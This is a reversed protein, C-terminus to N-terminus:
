RVAPDAVSPLGQADRAYMTIDLALELRTESVPGPTPGDWEPAATTAVHRRMGAVGTHLADTDGTGPRTFALIRLAGAAVEPPLAPLMVVAPAGAAFADGALARLNATRERESDLRTAAGEPEEQLVVLRFRDLPLRELKLLTAAARVAQESRQGVDATFGGIRIRPGSSTDLPTGIVHLVAAGDEDIGLAGSGETDALDPVTCALEPWSREVLGVWRRDALCVVKPPLWGSRHRQAPPPGARWFRLQAVQPLPASAPAALALLAEWPQRRLAPDVQVAVALGRRRLRRRLTALDATVPGPLAAAAARYPGLGPVPCRGEQQVPSPPPRWLRRREQRTLRIEVGGDDTKRLALGVRARAARRADIRGNMDLLWWLPLVLLALGAFLWVFALANGGFGQVMGSRDIWLGFAISGAVVCVAAVALLTMFSRRSGRGGLLWWVPLLLLSAVVLVLTMFVATALAEGLGPVGVEPLNSFVIGTAISVLVGLGLLRLWIRLRVPLRRWRNPTAADAPAAATPELAPEPPSLDLEAPLGAHRGHLWALLAPDPGDSRARWSLCALLRDLWGEWQSAGAPEATSPKAALRALASWTPLRDGENARVAEYRAKTRAMRDRGSRKRREGSPDLQIAAIWARTEAILAGPLDGADAFWETARDLLILAARPLRLALLEGEDLTLEALRRRGLSDLSTRSARRSGIALARTGAPVGLATCRLVLRALEELQHPHRLEWADLDIPVTPAAAAGSDMMSAEVWDLLLSLDDFGADPRQARAAVEANLGDLAHRAAAGRGIRSRWWAHLLAPTDRGPPPETGSAPRAQDLASLSWGAAADVPDTSGRLRAILAADRRALRLRRLVEAKAREAARITGQDRGTRTAGDLRRELMALAQEGDGLALWGRAMTVFLPPVTRHANCAPQRDPLYREARALAALEAAPVVGRALRLGLVASALREADVLQTRGAAEAGWTDLEEASRRRATEPLARIAELRVRDVTSDPARWDLWRQGQWATGASDVADAARDLQEGAERWRGSLAFARGALTRAFAALEDHGGRGDVWGLITAATERMRRDDGTREAREVLAELGACVSADLQAARDRAQEDAGGGAERAADALLAQVVEQLDRSPAVPGAASAAVQGLAARRRLWTGIVPDPHAAATEEVERWMPSLDLDPHEHLLAACSTALVAARLPSDRGVAGGEGLLRETVARAWGWGAGEAVRAELRDWLRSAQGDPLLRLAADVHDVGLRGLPRNAVLGALGRALREAAAALLGRRAPEQYWALLRPRLNREVELFSTGLADDPQWDIWETAALERFLDTFANDDGDFAPRLSDQDFRGLLVVAPLVSRVDGRQLRGVIRSEVYQDSRGSEVTAPDLSPVERVWDAYLALDFPNYRSHGAPRPPTRWTVPAPRDTERSRALVAARLGATLPAQRVRLFTGAEEETFGQVWHLRLYDKREPLLAIAEDPRSAQWDSGAAALLRRGAFLVRVSPVLEHLREVISFTAEVAPLRVGPAHLKALEECTDLVLLVPQPLLRLLDAFPRLAFEFQEGRVAALPDAPAPRDSLGEHFAVLRAQMENYLHEQRTDAVHPHLEDALELLLQGPRLVPYDPSIHDFDVRTTPIGRAPALEATIYRLLMTKGVGGEGLFHLAWGDEPQDLLREVDGVQEDRRLFHRLHRKDHAQRHLLEVRRHGLAAVAVLEGGLVGALASGADAWALAQGTAGATSLEAIRRDLWAASPGPGREGAMAALECWRGLAPPLPLRARADRLRTGATMAVTQLFVPGRRRRLDDLIEPRVAEPMWFSGDEGAAGALAFAEIAVATRREEDLPALCATLARLRDGPDVMGRASALAEELAERAESPLDRAVGLLATCREWDDPLRRAADLAQRAIELAREPEGAENLALAADRLVQVAGPGEPAPTSALAQELMSTAAAQQGTGAIRRAAVSAAGIRLAGADPPAAALAQRAVAAAEPAGQEAMASAVTGLAHARAQEGEVAEAMRLAQAEDGVYALAGAMHSRAMVRATPDLIEGATGAAEHVLAAREQEPLAAALALLGRGRQEPDDVARVAAVAPDILAAPLAPAIRALLDVRRSEDAVATAALVASRLLEPQLAEPVHPLVAILAAARPEPDDIAQVDELAQVLLDSRVEDPLATTVAALARARAAPDALARAHPLLYWALQETLTPAISVLAEVRVAEPGTTAVTDLAQLRLGTPLHPLLRTLARARAQPQSVALLLEFSRPLLEPPLFPALDAVAQAQYWEPLADTAPRSRECLAAAAARAITDELPASGTPFGCDAALRETWVPVVALWATTDDGLDAVRQSRREALRAEFARDFAEQSVEAM